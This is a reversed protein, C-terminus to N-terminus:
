SEGEGGTDDRRSRAERREQIYARVPELHKVLVLLMSAAVAITFEEGRVGGTLFRSLFSGPTLALLLPLLLSAVANAPNVEGLILYAGGWLVGWVPVLPWCFM